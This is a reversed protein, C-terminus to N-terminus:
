MHLLIYHVINYPPECDPLVPISVMKKAVEGGVVERLGDDDVVVDVSISSRMLSAMSSECVVMCM